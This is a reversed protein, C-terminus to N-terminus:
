AARLQVLIIITQDWAGFIVAKPEIYLKKEYLKKEMFNQM